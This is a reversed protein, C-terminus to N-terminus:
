TLLIYNVLLCVVATGSKILLYVGHIPLLPNHNQVFNKYVVMPSILFKIKHMFNQSISPNKLRDLCYSATKVPMAWSVVVIFIRDTFYFDVQSILYLGGGVFVCGFVLCYGFAIVERGKMNRLMKIMLDGLYLEVMAFGIMSSIAAADEVLNSGVIHLVDWKLIYGKNIYNTVMYIVAFHIAILFM